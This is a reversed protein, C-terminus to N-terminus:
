AVVRGIIRVGTGFGFEGGGGRFATSFDIVCRDYM